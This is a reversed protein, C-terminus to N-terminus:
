TQFTGTSVRPRRPGMRATDKTPTSYLSCVMLHVPERCDIGSWTHKGFPTSNYKEAMQLRPSEPFCPFMQARGLLTEARSSCPAGM